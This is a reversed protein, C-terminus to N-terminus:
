SSIDLPSSLSLLDGSVACREGRNNRLFAPTKPTEPGLHLQRWDTMQDHPRACVSSANHSPKPNKKKVPKFAAPAAEVASQPFSLVEASSSFGAAAVRFVRKSAASVLGLSQHGTSIHVTKVDAVPQWPEENVM